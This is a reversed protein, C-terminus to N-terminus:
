NGYGLGARHCIPIETDVRFQKLTSMNDGHIRGKVDVVKLKKMHFYIEFTRNM